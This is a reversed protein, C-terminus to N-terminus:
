CIQSENRDLRQLTPVGRVNPLEESVLGRKPPAKKDRDDFFLGAPDAPCDAQMHSSLVERDESGRGCTQNGTALPLNPPREGSQDLLLFGFAGATFRSASSSQPRHIVSRM